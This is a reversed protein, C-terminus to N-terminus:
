SRLVESNSDSNLSRPLSPPHRSNKMVLLSVKVRFSHVFCKFVGNILDGRFLSFDYMDNITINIHRTHLVVCLRERGM